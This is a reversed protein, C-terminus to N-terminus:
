AVLKGKPSVEVGAADVPGVPATINPRVVFVALVAGIANVWLAQHDASMHLGFATFLSVGAVFVGTVLAVIGDHAAIATVVAFVFVVVATAIGQFKRDQDFGYATVVQFVAAVTALWFAIERGFIKVM